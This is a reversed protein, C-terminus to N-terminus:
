NDLMHTKKYEGCCKKVIQGVGLPASKEFLYKSVAALAIPVYAPTDYPHALITACLFFMM